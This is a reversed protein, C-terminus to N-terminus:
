YGVVEYPEFVPQQQGSVLMFEVDSTDGGAVETVLFNDLTWSSSIDDNASIINGWAVGAEGVSTLVNDTDSLLESFGGGGVEAFFKKAADRIEFKINTGNWDGSNFDSDGSALVTVVSAVKKILWVDTGAVDTLGIAYYNNEDTVRGLLFFLNDTLSDTIVDIEVDYEASTYTGQATYLLRDSVNSADARLLDTSATITAFTGATDEIETYGTGVDTPTHVGLDTNSAVTFADQIVVAM